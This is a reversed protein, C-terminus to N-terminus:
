CGPLPILFAPQAPIGEYILALEDTKEDGLTLTDQRFRGLGYHHTPGRSIGRSPEARAASSANRSLRRRPFAKAFWRSSSGHTEAFAIHM